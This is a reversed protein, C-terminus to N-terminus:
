NYNLGGHRSPALIIKFNEGFGPMKFGVGTAFGEKCLYQGRKLGEIPVGERHNAILVGNVSKVNRKILPILRMM